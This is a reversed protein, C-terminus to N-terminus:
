LSSARYEEVTKLMKDAEGDRHLKKLLHAYHDMVDIMADNQGPGMAQADALALKYTAEAAVDKGQKALVQALADRVVPIKASGKKYAAIEMALKRRLIIEADAFKEQQQLVYNLYDMIRRESRHFVNKRDIVEAISLAKRYNSEAKACDKKHSYVQGLATFVLMKQQDNGKTKSLVSSARELLKEAQEFAGESDNVEGLSRLSMALHLYDEDIKQADLAGGRAGNKGTTSGTTNGIGGQEAGVSGAVTKQISEEFYKKAAALNNARQAAVGAQYCESWTSLHPVLPADNVTHDPSIETSEALLSEAEAKHGNESLVMAFDKTMQYQDALSGVGHKEYGIAQSYLTEAVNLEKQDHKIKALLALAGATDLYATRQAPQSPPLTSKQEPLQHQYIRCSREAFKAAAVLRGKACNIDALKYLTSALRVDNDGFTEAEELAQQFALEAQDYQENKLAVTGSNYHEKWRENVDVGM